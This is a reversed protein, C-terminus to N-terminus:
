WVQSLVASAIVTLLMVAAMVLCLIRTWRQRSSDHRNETKTM